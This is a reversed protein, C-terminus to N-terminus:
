KAAGIKNDKGPNSVGPQKEKIAKKWTVTNDNGTARISDTADVDITNKNGSIILDRVGAITVKNKNGAINIRICEGIFTVTNGGGAITVEPKKACDHDIKSASNIYAKDAYAATSVFLISLALRKM